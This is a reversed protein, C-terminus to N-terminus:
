RRLPHGFPIRFLGCVEFSARVDPGNPNGKIQFHLGRTDLYQIEIKEIDSAVQAVRTGSSFYHDAESGTGGYADYLQQRKDPPLRDLIQYATLFGVDGGKGCSANLLVSIIDDRIDDAPVRAATM